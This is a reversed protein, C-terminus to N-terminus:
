PLITFGESALIETAKITEYNDPMLYKNDNIVEIKIWDIGAGDRALRAIQVAEDANRAGSTNLMLLTNKPIYELINERHPEADVRRMALTVIEIESEVITQKMEEKSKFKGTGLLFRNNFERGAIVLSDGKMENKKIM